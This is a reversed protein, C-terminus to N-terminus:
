TKANWEPWLGAYIEKIADLLGYHLLSDQIRAEPHAFWVVYKNQELNFYQIGRKTQKLELSDFGAVRKFLWGTGGCITLDPEYLKFQRQIFEKDENAVKDLTANNTTHTGPSKMLNIICISKLVDVRLEDTKEKSYFKWNQISDINRIGHVWRAVNSWTQSQGGKAVFDTLKWGAEKSNVEKLIFAIKPNSSLYDRESVVGDKVFGKRNGQWETFLKDELERVSM